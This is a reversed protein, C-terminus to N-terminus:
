HHFWIFAGTGFLVVLAAILLLLAVKKDERVIEDNLDPDRDRLVGHLDESDSYARADPDLYRIAASIESDTLDKVNWNPWPYQPM